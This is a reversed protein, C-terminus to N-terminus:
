RITASPQSSVTRDRVTASRAKRSLWWAAALLAVDIAVGIWSLWLALM